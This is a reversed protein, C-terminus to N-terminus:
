KKGVKLYESVIARIVESCSVSEKKAIKSVEVYEELTLRAGVQKTKNKRLQLEM